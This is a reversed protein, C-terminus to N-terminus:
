KCKQLYTELSLLNILGINKSNKFRQDLGQSCNTNKKFLCVLQKMFFQIQVSQPNTRSPNHSQQKYPLPGEQMQVSGKDGINMLCEVNKGNCQLFIGKQRSM